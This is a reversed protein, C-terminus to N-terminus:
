FLSIRSDGYYSINYQNINKEKNIISKLQKQTKEPLTIIIRM